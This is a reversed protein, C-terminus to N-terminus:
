AGEHRHLDGFAVMKKLDFIKIIEDSGGTVMVRGNRTGAVCTVSGQHAEVAFVTRLSSSSSSSKSAQSAKGDKADKSSSSSSASASASATAATDGQLGFLTGMYTGVVVRVASAPTAM